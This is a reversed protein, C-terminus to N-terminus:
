CYNELLRPYQFLLFFALISLEFPSAIINEPTNVISRPGFNPSEVPYSFVNYTSTNALAHANTTSQKNIKLINDSYNVKNNSNTYRCDAKWNVKKLVDGTIDSVIFNWWNGGSLEHISLQWGSVIVNSKTLYFVKRMPIDDKSIGITPLQVKLKHVKLSDKKTYDGILEVNINSNWKKLNRIDTLHLEVIDKWPIEPLQKEDQASTCFTVWLFLLTYVIKKM